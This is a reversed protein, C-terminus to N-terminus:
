RRNPSRGCRDSGRRAQSDASPDVAPRARPSLRWVRLRGRFMWRLKALVFRDSGAQQIPADAFQLPAIIDNVLATGSSTLPDAM